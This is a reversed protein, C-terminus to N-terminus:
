CLQEIIGFESTMVTITSVGNNDKLSLSRNYSRLGAENSMRDILGSCFSPTPQSLERYAKATALTGSQARIERIHSSNGHM